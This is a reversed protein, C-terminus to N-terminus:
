GSANQKELEDLERLVETWANIAERAEDAATSRAEDRLAHLALNSARLATLTTTAAYRLARILQSNNQRIRLLSLHAQTAVALQVLLDQRRQRVAFLAGREYSQASQPESPAISAIRESLLEDVRKALEVYQELSKIQMTLAQDQQGLMANEAALEGRDEELAAALAQIEDERQSIQTYLRGSDAPGVSNPVSAIGHALGRLDRLHQSVPTQGSMQTARSRIALDGFTAAIQTSAIVEREGIRDVSRLARNFSPSGTPV